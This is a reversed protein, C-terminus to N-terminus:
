DRKCHKVRGQAMKIWNVDECDTEKLDINISDDSWFKIKWPINFWPTMKM